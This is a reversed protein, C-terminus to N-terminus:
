TACSVKPIRSSLRWSPSSESPFMSHALIMSGSGRNNDDSRALFARPFACSASFHFSTAFSRTALIFVLGFGGLDFDGPDFGVAVYRKRGYVCVLFDGNM